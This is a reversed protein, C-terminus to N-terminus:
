DAYHITTNPNTNNEMCLLQPESPSLSWLWASLSCHILVLNGAKLNWKNESFQMTEGAPSLTSVNHSYAPLIAGPGSFLSVASCLSKRKQEVGNGRIGQLGWMEAESGERQMIRNLEWVLCEKEEDSKWVFRRKTSGVSISGPFLSNLVM